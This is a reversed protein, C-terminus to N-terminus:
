GGSVGAFRGFVFEVGLDNDLGFGEEVLEDRIFVFGAEFFAGCSCLDPMGELLAIGGFGTFVFEAEFALKKVEFLGSCVRDILM